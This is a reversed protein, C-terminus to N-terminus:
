SSASESRYIVQQIRHALPPVLILQAIIGPLAPVVLLMLYYHASQLGMTWAYMLVYVLRGSIMAVLMAMVLSAIRGIREPMQPWVPFLRLIMSTVAAYTMLEPIMRMAQDPTPMGTFGSSLAPTLAGVAAALAPSLLMGALFVPFHMPLIVRPSLGFPHIFFPLVIGLAICTGGVGLAEVGRAPAFIEQPSKSREERVRSSKRDRAV